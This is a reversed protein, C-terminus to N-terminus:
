PIASVPHGIGIRSARPLRRPETPSYEKALILLNKSKTRGIKKWGACKFCYGDGKVANTDVYTYLREGPWRNHALREAALILDSSLVNGDYAGENRFVACNIGSQGSKDIFKRWVFLAKYDQTMLVMKGGPGVILHRNRNNVNQKRGDKYDHSSYHRAYMAAALPHGDKVSLWLYEPFLGIM